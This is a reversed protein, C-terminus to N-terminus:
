AFQLQRLYHYIIYSGLAAIFIFFFISNKVQLFPINPFNMGFFGMLLAPLFFIASFLNFSSQINYQTIGLYGFVTDHLYSVKNNLFETHTLLVDISQEIQGPIQVICKKSFNLLLQLNILSNHNNTILERVDHLEVATIKQEITQQTRRMVENKAYKQISGALVAAKQEATELTEAINQLFAEVAFSFAESVTTIHNKIPDLFGKNFHNVTILTNEKLILVINKDENTRLTMFCTHGDHFFRNIVSGIQMHTLPLKIGYYDEVSKIEDPTPQFLDIWFYTASKQSFDAKIAQGDKTM